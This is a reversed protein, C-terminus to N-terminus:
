LLVEAIWQDFASSPHQPGHDFWALNGALPISDYPTSEPIVPMGQESSARQFTLVMWDSTTKMGDVDVSSLDARHNVLVFGRRRLHELISPLPRHVDIRCAGTSHMTKTYVFKSNSDIDEPLNRTMLPSRRVNIANPHCFSVLLRGQDSVANTLCDILQNFEEDDEVVCFVLSSIVLDYGDPNSREAPFTLSRLFRVSSGEFDPYGSSDPDWADVKWGLNSLQLAIEGRGCGIDFATSPNRQLAEDIIMSDHTSEKSLPELISQFMKMLELPRPVVGLSCGLRINKAIHGGGFRGTLVMRAVLDEEGEASWPVLSHGLDTCVLGRTTQILNSARFDETMWGCRRMHQHLDVLESWCGAIPANGVVFDYTCLLDIGDSVWNVNRPLSSNPQKSMELIFARQSEELAKAGHRFWKVAVEESRFVIGEAGSGVLEYIGPGLLREISDKATSVHESRLPQPQQRRMIISDEELSHIFESLPEEFETKADFLERVVDNASSSLQNLAPRAASDPPLLGELAFVLGLIRHISSIAMTQRRLFMNNSFESLDRIARTLSQIPSARTSHSHLARLFSAGRVDDILSTANNVLPSPQRLQGLHLPVYCVNGSAGDPPDIRNLLAWFSDSRRMAAGEVMPAANLHHRLCRLDTVITNGGRVVFAAEDFWPHSRASSAANRFPHTGFAIQQIAEDLEDPRMGHNIGFELHDTHALTLDYYADKWNGLDDVSGGCNLATAHADILQTRVSSWAPLPPAGTIAGVGIMVNRKRLTGVVTGLDVGVEGSKSDGWAISSLEVDDDIIWAAGDLDRQAARLVARHVCSRGWAIGCRRNPQQFWPGFRGVDAALHMEKDTRVVVELGVEKQLGAADFEAGERLVIVARLHCSMGDNMAILGQLIQMSRGPVNTTWGVTLVGNFAPALDPESNMESIADHGQVENTISVSVGFVRESRELFARLQDGTMRGRHKEFFRSLGKKKREGGVDSIRGSGRADHHVTWTKTSAFSLPNAEILRIMVDRDTTSPLSEDFGGARLLCTLRVFLNSGQIGPNTVLFDDIRLDNPISLRRGDPTESDHRVLGTIVFDVDISCRALHDSEWWDDDDLMAMWWKSPESRESLVRSLMAEFGANAACALGQGRNNVVEVADHKAIISAATMDDPDRVVFVADASRNQSAVSELARRLKEPRHCTTIIVGINM